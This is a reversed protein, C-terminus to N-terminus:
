RGLRMFVRAPAPLLAGGDCCAEEDAVLGDDLVGCAEVPAVAEVGAVGAEVSGAAGASVAAWAAVAAALACATCDPWDEGSEEFPAEVGDVSVTGAVEAADPEPPV